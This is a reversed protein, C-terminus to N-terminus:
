MKCGTFWEADMERGHVDRMTTLLCRPKNLMVYVKDKREEGPGDGEIRAGTKVAVDPERGVRGNVRVKGARILERAEARSCFGRKSLARALGNAFGAM